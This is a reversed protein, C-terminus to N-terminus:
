KNDELQNARLDSIDLSIVLLLFFIARAFDENIVAAIVIVWGTIRALLGLIYFFTSM